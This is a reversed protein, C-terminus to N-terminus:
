LLAPARLLHGTAEVIGWAGVAYRPCHLMYGLRFLLPKVLNQM